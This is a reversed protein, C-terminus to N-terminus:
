KLSFTPKPSPHLPPPTSPLYDPNQDKPFKEKQFRIEKFKNKHFGSDQVKSDLIWSLSDPIGSVIPIRFGLEEKPEERTPSTKGRNKGRAFDLVELNLNSM